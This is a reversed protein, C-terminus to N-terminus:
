MAIRGFLVTLVRRSSDFSSCHHSVKSCRRCARRQADSAHRASVSVLCAPPSRKRPLDLITVVGASSSPNWRPPCATAASSPRAIPSPTGVVWTSICVRHLVFLARVADEGSESKPDACAGVRVRRSIGRRRKPGQRNREWCAHVGGIVRLTKRTGHARVKCRRRGRYTRTRYSIHRVTCICRLQVFRTTQVETQAVACFTRRTIASFRSRKTWVVREIKGSGFSAELRQSKSEGAPLKLGGQRAQSSSQLAWISPRTPTGVEDRPEAVNSHYTTHGDVRDALDEGSM